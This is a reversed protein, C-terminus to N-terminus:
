DELDKSTKAWVSKVHALLAAPWKAEAPDATFSGSAADDRIKTTGRLIFKTGNELLLLKYTASSVDSRCALEYGFTIEAVGDHDLDTISFADDHFKADVAGMVCDEVFDRVPLLSRPAGKAPVVWDDLFLFASRSTAGDGSPKQSAKSSLVVYNTGNKDDFRTAALFTDGRVTVGKPLQAATVATTTIPKAPDASATSVFAALVSLRHVQM